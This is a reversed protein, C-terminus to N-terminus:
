HLKRELDSHESYYRLDLFFFVHAARFAQKQVATFKIAYVVLLKLLWGTGPAGEPLPPLVRSSRGAQRAAVKFEGCRRIV